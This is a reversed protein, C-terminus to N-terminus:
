KQKKLYKKKFSVITQYNESKSLTHQDVNTSQHEFQNEPWKKNCVQILAKGTKLM